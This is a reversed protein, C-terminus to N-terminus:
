LFQINRIFRKFSSLTTSFIDINSDVIYSNYNFTMRYLPSNLGLNTHQTSICFLNTTRTNRSPVHFNLLSILYPCDLLNNLLKFLIIFDTYIRKQELPVINFQQKTASIDDVNYIGNVRLNLYRVFRNQVRELRLKYINYNPSWIVCAFNLRSYVYAYYLSKLSKEDRFERCTRFIFGLMGNCKRCVYDIHHGFSLRSDFIVGLDKIESVRRLEENNIQYNFIYPSINKTFTISHCKNINLFLKFRNCYQEIRNIDQQIGQCDNLSSVARFVKLDDAYLLFKSYKICEALDNIYILFLLPGLHSGQPVGSTIHVTNSFHGNIAVM